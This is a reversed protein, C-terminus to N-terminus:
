DNIIKEVTQTLYTRVAMSEQRPRINNAEFYGESRLKKATLVEVKREPMKEYRSSSQNKIFFNLNDDRFLPTRANNITLNCIKIM